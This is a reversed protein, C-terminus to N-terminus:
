KVINFTSVRVMRRGGADLTTRVGYRGPHNKGVNIQSKVEWVGNRTIQATVDETSTAVVDTGVLIQRTVRIPGTDPNPDDEKICREISVEHSVSEGPYVEDPSLSVGALDITKAKGVTCGFSIRKFFVGKDGSELGLFPNNACGVLGTVAVLITACLPASFSRTKRM